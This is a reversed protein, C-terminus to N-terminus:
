VLFIPTPNVKFSSSLSLTCKRTFHVLIIKTRNIVKFFCKKKKKKVTYNLLAKINQFYLNSMRVRITVSIIPQFLSAVNKM